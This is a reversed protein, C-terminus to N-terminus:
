CLNSSIGPQDVEIGLRRAHVCRAVGTARHLRQAPQTRQIELTVITGSKCQLTKGAFGFGDKEFAYGPSRITFHVERDILEPADIAVYGLNDSHYRLRHVTEFEVLPVGLRTEADIVRIGFCDATTSQVPESALVPQFHLVVFICSVAVLAPTVWLIRRRLPTSRFCEWM